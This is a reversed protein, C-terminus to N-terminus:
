AGTAYVWKAGAIVNYIFNMQVMITLVREYM